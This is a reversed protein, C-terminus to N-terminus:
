RDLAAVVDAAEDAPYVREGPTFRAPVTMWGVLNAQKTYRVFRDEVVVYDPMRRLVAQMTEVFEARALHMGLCRHVGSGFALNRNPKRDLKLVMPDPFVSADHNAATISSLVKEGPKITFEGVQTEQVCTRTLTRNPPYRRLFEETADPWLSPDEALQQRHEPTHHLYVLASGLLSTTTDVGAGLLIRVLSVADAMELPKGDIEINVVDTLTDERPTAKRAELEEAIRGDFWGITEAARQFEESEIPRGQLDHWASGIRWWEERDEFGLWELTVAGPIPVAIDYILDCHGQEIVRDIFVNTWYEIRPRLENEVKERSLTPNLARRFATHVPPDDDVMAVHGYPPPPHIIGETTSFTRWEKAMRDTDEYGTLYWYGGHAETWAVPCQQQMWTDVMEPPMVSAAQHHDFEVTVESKDRTM